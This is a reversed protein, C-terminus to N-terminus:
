ARAAHTRGVRRTACPPISRSRDRCPRRSVGSLTGDANTTVGSGRAFQEATNSGGRVVVDSNRLVAAGADGVGPVLGVVVAAVGLGTPNRATEIAGKVDGIGPLLDLAASAVAPAQQDFRAQEAPTMHLPDYDGVAFSASERGTPDSMNLPDNRVYAYLNLDDEYGVPDTQLFRGGDPWYARAKYHYFGVPTATNLDPDLVIQGTYRFRSGSWTNPEGYPGYSYRTTSAGSAAIISGQHDTILHRRDSTGSGEYWVIPEDVGPGHVYRRLLTSGSYEAVLRDGDYLFDRTM